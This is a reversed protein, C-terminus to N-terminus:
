RVTVSMQSHCSGLAVFDGVPAHYHWAVWKWREQETWDKKLVTRDKRFGVRCAQSRKLWTTLNIQYMLFSQWTSYLKLHHPHLVTRAQPGNLLITHWAALRALWTMPLFLRAEILAPQATRHKFHVKLRESSTKSAEKKWLPRKRSNPFVSLYV